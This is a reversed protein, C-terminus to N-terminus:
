QSISAKTRLTQMELDIMKKMQSYKELRVNFAAQDPVPATIMKGLEYQMLNHEKLRERAATVESSKLTVSDYQRNLATIAQNTEELVHELATYDDNSLAEKLKKTTQDANRKEQSTAAWLAKLDDAIDRANDQSLQQTNSSQAATFTSPENNTEPSTFPENSNIISTPNSSSINQNNSADNITTPTSIEQQTDTKNDCGIFLFTYLCLLSCCIKQM